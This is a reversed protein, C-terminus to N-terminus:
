NEPPRMVAEFRKKLNNPVFIYNTLSLDSHTEISDITTMHGESTIRYFEYNYKRLFSFLRDQREKRFKGIKENENYVPLVECIIFPSFKEITNELGQIVELEAGEVDIKMIAISELDQDKFFDDGRVVSTEIESSYFSSERFDSIISASSDSENSM